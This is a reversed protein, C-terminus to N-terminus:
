PFGGYAANNNNKNNYYNGCRNRSHSVKTECQTALHYGSIKRFQAATSSELRQSGVRIEVAVTIFL